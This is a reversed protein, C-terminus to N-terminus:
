IYALPQGQECLRRSVSAGPSYMTLLATRKRGNEDTEMTGDLRREADDAVIVADAGRQQASLVKFSFPCHGRLVLAIKRKDHPSSANRDTAPASSVIAQSSSSALKVENQGPILVPQCGYMDNRQETM